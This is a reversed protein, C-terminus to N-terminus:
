GLPLLAKRDPEGKGLSSRASPSPPCPTLDESCVLMEDKLCPPDCMRHLFLVSPPKSASAIAILRTEHEDSFAVGGAGGVVEVLLAGSCVCGVPLLFRRMTKM